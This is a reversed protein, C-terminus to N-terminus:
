ARGRVVSMLLEETAGVLREVSYNQEIWRRAESTRATRGAAAVCLSRGIAAALAPADRVPVIDGYADVIAAADGVDTAVVPTRCAMAEAIVNSFGEGFASCSVLLDLATYVAPMDDRAGAWVLRGALGFRDALTRLEARYDATGDGVIVFRPGANDRALRHAADLFLPVDKMPDLRGVLGVLPADAPISWEQRLRARGDPDPRFSDTDIGNAVVRLTAAPFGVSAAYRAGAQSNAIVLSPLRSLRSELVYTLRLLLDYRSFDNTSARLGWVIPLRPFFPRLAIAVLNAIPMYSHLIEPREERMITMLRGFFGVVDWRGRKGCVRLRVGTGVFLGAFGDEAYFCVLVVDHGRLALGTALTALQREAGGRVLSRTLFCIRM